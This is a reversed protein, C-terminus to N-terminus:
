ARGGCQETILKDLPKAKKKIPGKHQLKGDPLLWTLIDFAAWALVARERDELKGANKQCFAAGDRVASARALLDHQLQEEPSLKPPALRKVKSTQRSDRAGAEEEIERISKGDVLQLFLARLGDSLPPFPLNSGHNWNAGLLKPAYDRAIVMCMNVRRHTVQPGCSKLWVGFEGHPLMAKVQNGIWGIELARERLESLAKHAHKGAESYEGCASIMLHKLRDLSPAAALKNM